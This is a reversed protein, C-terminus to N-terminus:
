DNEGPTSIEESTEPPTGTDLSQIADRHRFADALTWFWLLVFVVFVMIGQIIYSQSNQNYLDLGGALGIIGIPIMIYGLYNNRLFFLWVIGWWLLPLASIGAQVAWEATTLTNPPVMTLVVLIVVLVKLSWHIFYRRWLIAFLGLGIAYILGRIFASGVVSFAPLYTDLVGPLGEVPFIAITPWQLRIWTQLHEVGLFGLIAMPVIILADRSFLYREPAKWALLSGPYYLQNLATGLLLLGGVGLGGIVLYVIMITQFQNWPITTIYGSLIASWNNVSLLLGLVFGVAGV